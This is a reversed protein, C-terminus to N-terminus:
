QQLGRHGCFLEMYRCFLGTYRCFLVTYGGFLGSNTRLHARYMRLLAEWIQLVARCMQLFFVQLGCVLGRYKRLIHWRNGCLLGKYGCLSGEVDCQYARSELCMLSFVHSCSVIQLDNGTVSYRSLVLNQSFSAKKDTFSGFAYAFSGLLDTL